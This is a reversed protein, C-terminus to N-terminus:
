SERPRLALVEIARRRDQTRRRAQRRANRPRARGASSRKSGASTSATSSCRRCRRSRRDVAGVIRSRTRTRCRSRPTTTASSPRAAGQGERLVPLRRPHLDRGPRAEEGEPQHLRADHRRGVGRVPRGAEGARHVDEAVVGDKVLMSYRWSRKGFGLDRSTSWCAWATPSSATATPCCCSTARGGPGAGVREDRVHRQGLRLRDRRRRQRLVGARARQLAAPADVLLDAHVRRAALLRRRDQRRLPRRHDREEM